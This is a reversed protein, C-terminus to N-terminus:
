VNITMLNIDKYKKNFNISHKPIMLEHNKNFIILSYKNIKKPNNNSWM